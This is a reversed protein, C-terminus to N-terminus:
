KSLFRERLKHKFVKGTDARPLEAVIEVRAPVHGAGLAERIAAATLEAGPLPEVCACAIEGDEVPLGLVACDAVGPVALIAAEIEAPVWTEGGVRILDRGRDHLTLYGDADLHGVDGATVLDGRGIADRDAGRGEYTFRHLSDSGAYITGTAGAPVTRGQDDLVALTIGPLARGVSGPHTRADDSDALTLLGTETSGYYEHVIPGWATIVEAKVVPACPAAGHIVHRLSGVDYRRAEPLRLMRVMMAPSLHVHTVRHREILALAREAEFRPMLVINAGAGHALKAFARPVSHSLPGTVLAVARGPKDFGYVLKAKISGGSPSVARRVGKPRGTSGSTYGLSPAAEAPEGEFPPYAALWADWLQDECGTQEVKAVNGSGEDARRAGEGALPSPIDPMDNSRSDSLADVFTPTPVALSRLDPPLRERLPALLDAHAILVRASCDGLVFLLDDAAMQRDLPVAAAGILAAARQAEFFAIDNHLLLAVADGARVGLAVLGSVARRARAEVAAHSRWAEGAVIRPERESEITM